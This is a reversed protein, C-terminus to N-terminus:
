QSRIETPTPTGRNPLSYLSKLLGTKPDVGIKLESVKSFELLLLDHATNENLTLRFWTLADAGEIKAPPTTTAIHFSHITAAYGDIADLFPAVMRSAYPWDKGNPMVSERNIKLDPNGPTSRIADKPSVVLREWNKANTLEYTLTGRAPAYQAVFHVDTGTVAGKIEIQPHAAKARKGLAALQEAPSDHEAAPETAEPVCNTLAIVLVAALYARM